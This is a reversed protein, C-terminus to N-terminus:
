IKYARGKWRYEGFNSALGFFVVYFPYIIQLAIVGIVHVKVQTIRAVSKLYIFDFVCKVGWGMLLWFAYQSDVIFPTLLLIVYLFMIALPLVMSAWGEHLKWKSAWRRRQHVLESWSAAADTLVLADKSKIFTVSEPYKETVKRLLFEDDGTPVEENGKFGDVSLFVEKSFSYNCGNIMGPKGTETSVAGVGILATLEINLLQQWYNPSQYAVPGFSLQSGSVYSAAHDIVWRGGVSTDADTCIMLVGKGLNVGYSIASKKGKQDNPLNVITMKDSTINDLQQLTRDESHDNVVLLEFNEYGNALISEVTDIITKEGNRVPVIVTVFVQSSTAPKQKIRKWHYILYCIGLVYITLVFAYLVIM